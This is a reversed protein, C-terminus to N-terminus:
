GVRKSPSDYETEIHLGIRLVLCNHLRNGAIATEPQPQIITRFNDLM